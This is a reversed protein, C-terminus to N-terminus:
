TYLKSFDKCNLPIREQNDKITIEILELRNQIDLWTIEFKKDYIEDIKKKKISVEEDEIKRKM